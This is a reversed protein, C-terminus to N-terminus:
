YRTPDKSEKEKQKMDQSNKNKSRRRGTPSKPSRILQSAHFVPFLSRRRALRWDVLCGCNSNLDCASGCWWWASLKTELKTTRPPPLVKLLHPKASSSRTVPPKFTISASQGGGWEMENGPGLTLPMTVMSGGDHSAEACTWFCYSWDFTSQLRWVRLGFLGKRNTFQNNWTNTVITSLWYCSLKM